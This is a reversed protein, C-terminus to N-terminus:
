RKNASIEEVLKKYSNVGSSGLGSKIKAAGKILMQLKAEKEDNKSQLEQKDQSLTAKEKELTEKESRVNDLSQELNQKQQILTQNQKEMERIRAEMERIRAEMERIKEEPGNVIRQVYEIGDPLLIKQVDYKQLIEQKANPNELYQAAYPLYLIITKLTELDPVPKKLEQTLQKQVMNEMDQFIKAVAAKDKQNVLILHYLDETTALPSNARMTLAMKQIEAMQGNANISDRYLFSLMDYKLQEDKLNSIQKLFVARVKDLEQQNPIALDNNFHEKIIWSGARIQAISKLSNTFELAELTNPKQIIDKTQKLLEYIKKNFEVADSGKKELNSISGPLDDYIIDIISPNVNTVNKRSNFIAAYVEFLFNNGIAGGSLSYIDKGPVLFLKAMEEYTMYKM